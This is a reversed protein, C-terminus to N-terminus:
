FDLAKVDGIEVGFRDKYPKVRTVESWALEARGGVRFVWAVKGSGEVKIQSPQAAYAPDVVAFVADLNNWTRLHVLM